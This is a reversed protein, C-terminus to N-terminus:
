RTAERECEACRGLDNIPGVGDHAVDRHGSEAPNAVRNWVRITGPESTRDCDLCYGRKRAHAIERAREELDRMEFDADQFGAPLEPDYM